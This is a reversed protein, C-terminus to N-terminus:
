SRTKQLNRRIIPVLAEAEQAVQQITALAEAGTAPDLPRKADRAAAIFAPDTISAYVAQGLCNRLAPDLGPPAVVLRGAALIASLATALSSARSVDQNVNRAHRAALGDAGCLWPVDALGPHDAIPASSVQMLARAEGSEVYQRASGWSLSTVDFEGRVMALVANGTGEYGTVFKGEFGLFESGLACSFWDEGPARAVGFVLRGGGARRRVDDMTKVKSAAATIWVDFDRALRALIDLEQGLKPVNEAATLNSILISPGNLIGLTSGDPPARRVEKAGVVGGAGVVNAVVVEAGLKAELVPELLRSYTDFGGGVRYPVVWRVTGGAVGECATAIGSRGALLGLGALAAASNQLLKRRSLLTNAM